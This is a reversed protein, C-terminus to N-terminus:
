NDVSKALKDDESAADVEKVTRVSKTALWEKYLGMNDYTENPFSSGSGEVVICDELLQVPMDVPCSANAGGVALVAAASILLITCPTKKM